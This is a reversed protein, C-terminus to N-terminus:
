TSKNDNLAVGCVMQLVVRILFELVVALIIFCAYVAGVFSSSAVMVKLCVYGLLGLAHRTYCLKGNFATKRNTWEM